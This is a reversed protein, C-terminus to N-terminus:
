RNENKTENILGQQIKSELKKISEIIRHIPKPGPSIEERIHTAVSVLARYSEPLADPTQIANEEIRQVLSNIIDAMIHLEQLTSENLRAIQAPTKTTVDAALHDLIEKTHELLQSLYHDIIVAVQKRVNEAKAEANKKNLRFSFYSVVIGLFAGAVIKIYEEIFHPADLTYEGYYIFGIALLPSLLLIATTLVIQGTRTKM